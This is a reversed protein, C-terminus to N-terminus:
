YISTGLLKLPQMEWTKDAHRSNEAYKLSFASQLDASLSDANKHLEGGSNGSALACEEM